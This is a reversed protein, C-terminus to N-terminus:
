GMLVEKVRKMENELQKTAHMSYGMFPVLVIRVNGNETNLYAIGGTGWNKWTLGNHFKIAARDESVKVYSYSSTFREKLESFERIPTEVQESLRHGYAPEEFSDSEIYGLTKSLNLWLAGFFLFVFVFGAMASEILIGSFSVSFEQYGNIILKVVLIALVYILFAVVAYYSFFRKM